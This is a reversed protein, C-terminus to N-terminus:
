EPYNKQLSWPEKSFIRKVLPSFDALPLTDYNPDFSAQDWVKAFYVAQEYLPHDLFQDRANRNKGWHHWFYYGQFIDHHKIIWYTDKGVYPKLINAAISAHNHPMLTDGIDHFLAAVVMEESANDRLARTATQLSHEYRNVKHSLYVQRLGTLQVLLLEPLQQCYANYIETEIQYDEATGVAMSTYDALSKM